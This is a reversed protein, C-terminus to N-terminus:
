KSLSQYREDFLGGGYEVSGGIKCAGATLLILVFLFSKIVKSFM